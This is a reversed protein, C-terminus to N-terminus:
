EQIPTGKSLMKKIVSYQHTPIPTYRAPVLQDWVVENSRSNLESNGVILGVGLVIAHQLVESEVLRGLYERFASISLDKDYWALYCYNSFRLYSFAQMVDKHTPEQKKVEITLTDGISRHDITEFCGVIDPNSWEGTGKKDAMSVLERFVAEIPPNCLMWKGLSEYLHTEKKPQYPNGHHRDYYGKIHLLNSATLKRQAGQVSEYRLAGSRRVRKVKSLGNLCDKIMEVSDRVNGNHVKFKAQVIDKISDSSLSEPAAKCLATFVAEAAKLFHEKTSGSRTM